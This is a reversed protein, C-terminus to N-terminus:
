TKKKLQRLLIGDGFEIANDRIQYFLQKDKERIRKEEEEFLFFLFLQHNFWLNDAGNKGIKPKKITKVEKPPAPKSKEAEVVPEDVADLWFKAKNPM